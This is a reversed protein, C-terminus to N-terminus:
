DPSDLDDQEEGGRPAPVGVKKEWYEIYAKLKTNYQIKKTKPIKISPCNGMTDYKKKLKHRQELVKKFDKIPLSKKISNVKTVPNLRDTDSTISIPLAIKILTTETYVHMFQQYEHSCFVPIQKKQSNKSIILNNSDTVDEFHDEATCSIITLLIAM